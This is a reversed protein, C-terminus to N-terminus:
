CQGRTVTQPNATAAQGYGQVHLVFRGQWTGPCACEKMSCICVPMCCALCSGSAKNSNEPPWVRLAAPGQLSASPYQNTASAALHHPELMTLSRAKVSTHIRMEGKHKIDHYEKKDQIPYSIMANAALSGLSPGDALHVAPWSGRACYVINVISRAGTDTRNTLSHDPVANVISGSKSQANACSVRELQEQKPLM